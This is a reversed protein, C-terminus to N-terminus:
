NTTKEYGNLTVEITHRMAQYPMLSEARTMPPSSCKLETDSIITVNM